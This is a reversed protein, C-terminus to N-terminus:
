RKIKTKHFSADLLGALYKMFKLQEPISNEVELGIVEGFLFKPLTKLYAFDKLGKITHLDTNKEFSYGNLHNCAFYRKVKKRKIIYDFEKSWKEEEVKFHALDVCFGGIKNVKVNNSVVNDTNMELFLQKHFGNWKSLLRFSDEHITFYRSNFNKSLFVFEWRQMDNRAHVLPIEKVNSKLLAQYIEKRQRPKFCELFLAIKQINHKNIENLKNKWHIDKSGTLGVLIRESFSNQKM